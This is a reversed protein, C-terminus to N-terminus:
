RKFACRDGAAFAQRRAKRLQRQNRRPSALSNQIRSRFIELPASYTRPRLAMPEGANSAVSLGLAAM